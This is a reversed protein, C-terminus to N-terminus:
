RACTEGTALFTAAAEAVLQEPPMESVFRQVQLRSIREATKPHNALFSLVSATLEAPM